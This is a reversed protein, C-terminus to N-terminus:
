SCDSQSKWRSVSKRNLLDLSFVDAQLTNRQARPLKVPLPLLRENLAQPTPEGSHASGMLGVASNILDDTLMRARAFRTQETIVTLMSTQRLIQACTSVEGDLRAYIATVACHEQVENLQALAQSQAERL